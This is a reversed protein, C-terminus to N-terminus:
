MTSVNTSDLIMDLFATTQLFYNSNEELKESILTLGGNTYSEMTQILNKIAEDETLEGKELAILDIDSKAILAAFIQEQISSYDQRGVRSGVNGWYQIAHNFDSRSADEPIPSFENNYLGLFFAYIYLEYNNSFHKGQSIQASVSSGGKKTLQEFLSEFEKNYKPIKTRWRSYLDKM